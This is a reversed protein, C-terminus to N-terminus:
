WWSALANSVAVATARDVDTFQNEAHVDCEAHGDLATVGDIGITSFAHDCIQEPRDPVREVSARCSAVDIFIAIPSSPPSGDRRSRTCTATRQVRTNAKTAPREHTAGDAALPCSQRELASQLSPSGHVESVHVKKMHECKGIMVKEQLFSRSQAVPKTQLLVRCHPALGHTRAVGVRIGVRVGVRTGVRVGVREPQRVFASQRCPCVQRRPLHM